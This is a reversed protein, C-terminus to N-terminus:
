WIRHYGISVVALLDSFRRLHFIPLDFYFSWEGARVAKTATNFALGPQLKVACDEALHFLYM